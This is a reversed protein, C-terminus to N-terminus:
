KTRRAQKATVQTLLAAVERKGMGRFRAISPLHVARPKAIKTEWNYVSQESVGILKGFQAASLGLRHRLTRFGQASFRYSAKEALNKEPAASAKANKELTKHARELAKFQRKLAAIDRRYAASSKELTANSKKAERRAIRAMEDKLVQGVNPM